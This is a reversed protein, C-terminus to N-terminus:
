EGSAVMIRGLRMQQGTAAEEVTVREWEGDISEVTQTGTAASWAGVFFSSVQPTYTLGTKRRIYEIRLRTTAGSGITTILPLGNTGTGSTLIPNGSALPPTNFACELLNM